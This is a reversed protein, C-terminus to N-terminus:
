FCRSRLSLLHQHLEVMAIALLTVFIRLGKSRSCIRSDHGSARGHLRRIALELASIDGRRVTAIIVQGVENQWTRCVILGLLDIISVCSEGKILNM